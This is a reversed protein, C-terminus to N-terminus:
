QQISQELRQRAGDWDERTLETAPECFAEEIKEELWEQCLRAEIFKEASDFKGAALKRAVWDQIEPPLEITVTM